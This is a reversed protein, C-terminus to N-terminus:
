TKNRDDKRVAALGKLDEMDLEPKEARYKAGIPEDPGNLAITM